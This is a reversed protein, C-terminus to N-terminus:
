SKKWREQSPAEKFYRKFEYIDDIKRSNCVVWREICKEKSRASGRAVIDHPPLMEDDDDDGDGNDLATLEGNWVKRPVVPITM